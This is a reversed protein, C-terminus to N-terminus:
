ALTFGLTEVIEWFLSGLEHKEQSSSENSIRQSVDLLLSVAAPTNLDDNM